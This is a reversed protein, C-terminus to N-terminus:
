NKPKCGYYQCSYTDCKKYSIKKKTRCKKHARPTKRDDDRDDGKILYPNWQPKSYKVIWLINLIYVIIIILYIIRLSNADIGILNGIGGIVGLFILATITSVLIDTTQQKKTYTENNLNIIRSKNLLDSEIVDIKYQNNNNDTEYQKSIKNRLIKGKYRLKKEGLLTRLFGHKSKEHIIETENDDDPIIEQPSSKDVKTDSTIGNSIEIDQKTNNNKQLEDAIQMQTTDSSISTM